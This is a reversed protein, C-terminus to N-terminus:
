TDDKKEKYTKYMNGSKYHKLIAERRYMDEQEEPIHEPVDWDHYFLSCDGCIDVRGIDSFDYEYFGSYSDILDIRCIYCKEPNYRKEKEKRRKPSNPM